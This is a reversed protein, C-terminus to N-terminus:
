YYSQGADQGQSAAGGGILGALLGGSSKVEDKNLTNASPMKVGLENRYIQTLESKNLRPLQKKVNHNNPM